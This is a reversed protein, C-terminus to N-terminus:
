VGSKAKKKRPRPKSEKSSEEEELDDDEDRFRRRTTRWTSMDAQSLHVLYKARQILEDNRPTEPVLDYSTPTAANTQRHMSSAPSLRKKSSMMNSLKATFFAAVNYEGIVPGSGANRSLPFREASMNPQVSHVMASINPQQVLHNPPPMSSLAQFQRLLEKNYESSQTAPGNGFRDNSGTGAPPALNWPARALSPSQLGFAQPASKAQAERQKVIQMVQELPLSRQNLLQLLVDEFPPGGQMQQMAELASAVQQSSLNNANNADGKSAKKAEKGAQGKNGQQVQQQQRGLAALLQREQTQKLEAQEALILFHDIRAQTCHPSQDNGNAIIETPFEKGQAEREIEGSPRLAVSQMNRLENNPLHGLLQLLRLQQEEEQKKAQQQQELALQLVVDDMATPNTKLMGGIGPFGPSQQALFPGNNDNRHMASPKYDNSKGASGGGGRMENGADVAM